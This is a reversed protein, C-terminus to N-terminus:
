LVKYRGLKAGAMVRPIVSWDCSGGAFAKLLVFPFHAPAGAREIDEPKERAIKKCIAM